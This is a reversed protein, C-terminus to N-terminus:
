AHLQPGGKDSDLTHNAIADLNVKRTAVPRVFNGAWRNLKTTNQRFKRATQSIGNISKHWALSGTAVVLRRLYGVRTRLAKAFVRRSTQLRPGTKLGQLPKLKSIDDSPTSRHMTSDRKRDTACIDSHPGSDPKAKEEAVKMYIVLELGDRGKYIVAKNTM